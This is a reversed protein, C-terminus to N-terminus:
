FKLLRNENTYHISKSGFGVQSSILDVERHATQQLHRLGQEDRGVRGTAAEDPECQNGPALALITNKVIFFLASTM